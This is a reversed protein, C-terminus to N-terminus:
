SDEWGSLFNPLRLNLYSNPNLEAVLLLTELLATEVTLHNNDATTAEEDDFIGSSEAKAIVNDLTLRLEPFSLRCM